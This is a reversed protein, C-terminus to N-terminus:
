KIVIIRLLSYYCKNFYSLYSLIIWKNVTKAALQTLAHFTRLFLWWWSKLRASKVCCLGFLSCLPDRDLQDHASKICLGRLLLLVARPIGPRSKIASKDFSSMWRHFVWGDPSHSKKVPHFNGPRKMQAGTASKIGFLMGIHIVHCVFDKGSRGAMWASRSAWNSSTDTLRWGSPWAM